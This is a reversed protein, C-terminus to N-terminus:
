TKPFHNSYLSSFLFSSQPHSFAPRWKFFMQRPLHRLCNSVLSFNTATTKKLKAHLFNPMSATLPRRSLSLAHRYM